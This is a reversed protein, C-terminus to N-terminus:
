IHIDPKAVWVGATPWAKSKEHYVGPWILVWDGRHAANVAAQVTKFHSVGAPCPATSGNCVLLARAHDHRAAHAAVSALSQSATMAPLGAVALASAALFLWSRRM